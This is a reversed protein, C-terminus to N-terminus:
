VHNSNISDIMRRAISYRPPILPLNHRHFWQADEIETPHIQIDGSAYDAFFGLMFSNPFPWAQSDFYRINTVTVGVEEMVERAITEECSEGAEVFGALASYMGPAFHPSRALLFEDQRQILVIIAPSISPYYSMGCTDCHKCHEELSLRSPAGCHGCYLSCRHWYLLQKARCIQKCLQTDFTIGLSKRTPMLVLHPSHALEEPSIHIAKLAVGEFVGLNICNTDSHNNGVTQLPILCTERLSDYVIDDNHFLLGHGETHSLRKSM